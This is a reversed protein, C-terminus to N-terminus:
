QSCSIVTLHYECVNFCEVHVTYHIYLTQLIEAVIVCTLFQKKIGQECYLMTEIQSGSLGLQSSYM